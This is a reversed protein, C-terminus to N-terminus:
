VHILNGERYFEKGTNQSFTIGEMKQESSFKKLRLFFNIRNSGGEGNEM